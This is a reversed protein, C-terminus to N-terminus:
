EEPPAEYALTPTGEWKNCIKKALEPSLEGFINALELEEEDSLYVSMQQELSRQGWGFLKSLMPALEKKNTYKIGLRDALKIGLHATQLRNIGARNQQRDKFAALEEKLREAEEKLRETEDVKEKEEEEDESLEGLKEKLRKYEEVLEDMRKEIAECDTENESLSGGNQQYLPIFDDRNIRDYQEGRWEESMDLLNETFLLYTDISAIKECERKICEELYHRTIEIPTQYKKDYVQLINIVLTMTLVAFQTRYVENDTRVSLAIKMFQARYASPNKEQLIATTIYYANNFADLMCEAMNEMDTIPLRLFAAKMYCTLNHVDDVGFDSIDQRERYLRERTEKSTYDM